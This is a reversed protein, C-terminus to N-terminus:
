GAMLKCGGFAASDFWTPDSVHELATWGNCTGVSSRPPLLCHEECRTSLLWQELRGPIHTGRDLCVEM